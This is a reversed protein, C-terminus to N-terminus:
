INFHIQSPQCPPSPKKTERYHPLPSTYYHHSSSPKQHLKTGTAKTTQNNISIHPTTQSKPQTVSIPLNHTHNKQQINKHIKQTSLPPPYLLILLMCSAFPPSARHPKEVRRQQLFSPAKISTFHSFQLPFHNSSEQM